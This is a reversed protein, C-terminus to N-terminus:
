FEFPLPLRVAAIIPPPAPPPAKIPPSAPPPLPAAMPARTPAQAPFTPEANVPPLRSIERGASDANLKSSVAGTVILGELEGSYAHRRAELSVTGFHVLGSIPEIWSIAQHLTPLRRSMNQAPQPKEALRNPSPSLPAESRYERLCL